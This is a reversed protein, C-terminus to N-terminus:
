RRGGRGRRSRGRGKSITGPDIEVAIVAPEREMWAYKEVERGDDWDGQGGEETTYGEDRVEPYSHVLEKTFGPTDITPKAWEKNPTICKSAMANAKASIDIYLELIWSLAGAVMSTFEHHFASWLYFYNQRLVVAGDTGLGWAVWYPSNAPLPWYVKRYKKQYYNVYGITGRKWVGSPRLETNAIINGFNYKDWIEHQAPLVIKDTVHGLLKWLDLTAERIQLWTSQFVTDDLVIYRPDQDERYSFLGKLVKQVTEARHGTDTKLTSDLIGGPDMFGKVREEPTMEIMVDGEDNWLANHIPKLVDWVHGRISNFENNFTVQYLLGSLKILNIAHATLLKTADVLNIVTNSDKYTGFSQVFEDWQQKSVIIDSNASPEAWDSLPPEDRPPYIERLRQLAPDLLKRMESRLAEKKSVGMKYPLSALRAEEEPDDGEDAVVHQFLSLSVILFTLFRTLWSRAQM